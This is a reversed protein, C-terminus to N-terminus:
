CRRFPALDCVEILWMPAGMRSEGGKRMHGIKFGWVRSWRAM